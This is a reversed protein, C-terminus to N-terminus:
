GLLTRQGGLANAGAFLTRQGYGTRRAASVRAAQGAQIVDAGTQSPPPAMPAAPEPVAIQPNEIPKQAQKLQAKLLQMQLAESKKQSSSVKPASSKSGM